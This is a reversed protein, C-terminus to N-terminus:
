TINVQAGAVDRERLRQAMQSMIMHAFYPTEQVLVWFLRAPIMVLEIDTQARATLSRPSDDILALEGFEAPATVNTVVEDGKSLVVTGKTVLYMADGPDGETFILEGAAFSRPPRARALM